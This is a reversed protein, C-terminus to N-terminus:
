YNLCLKGQRQIVILVFNQLTLSILTLLMNLLFCSASFHSWTILVRYPYSLDDFYWSCAAANTNSDSSFFILPDVCKRNKEVATLYTYLPRYQTLFFWLFSNIKKNKQESLSACWFRYLGKGSLGDGFLASFYLDSHLLSGLMIHLPCQHEMKLGLSVWIPTNPVM